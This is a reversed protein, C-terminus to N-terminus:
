LLTLSIRIWAEGGPLALLAVEKGDLYIRAAGEKITQAGRSVEKLRM